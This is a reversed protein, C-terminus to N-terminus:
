WRRSATFRIKAIGRRTVLTTSSGIASWRPCASCWATWATVDAPASPELQETNRFDPHRPSRFLSRRVYRRAAPGERVQWQRLDRWVSVGRLRRSERPMSAASNSPAVAFGPGGKCKPSAVLCSHTGAALGLAVPRPAPLSEREPKGPCSHSLLLGLGRLNLKRTAHINRTLARCHCASCIGAFFSPSVHRFGVLFAFAVGGVHRLLRRAKEQFARVLEVPAHLVAEGAGEIRVGPAGHHQRDVVAIELARGGPRSRM